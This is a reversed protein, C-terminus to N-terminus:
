RARNYTMVRLQIRQGPLVERTPTHGNTATLLEAEKPRATDACSLETVQEGRGIRSRFLSTRTM